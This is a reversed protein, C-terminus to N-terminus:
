RGVEAVVPVAAMAERVADAPYSFDQLKGALYNDYATMDFYGHGSLNFLIVKRTGADKATLAEDIAGERELAQVMTLQVDLKQDSTLAPTPDPKPAEHVRPEDAFPNWKKVSLFRGEGCGALSVAVVGVLLLGRSSAHEVYPM